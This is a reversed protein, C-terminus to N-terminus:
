HTASSPGPPEAIADVVPSPKAERPDYPHRESRYLASRIIM